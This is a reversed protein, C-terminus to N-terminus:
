EFEGRGNIEQLFDKVADELTYDIYRRKFMEPFTEDDNDPMYYLTFGDTRHYEVSINSANITNM